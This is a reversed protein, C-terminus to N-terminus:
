NFGYVIQYTKDFLLNQSGEGFVNEINKHKVGFVRINKASPLTVGKEVEVLLFRAPLSGM